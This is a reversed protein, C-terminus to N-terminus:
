AALQNSKLSTASILAAISPLEPGMTRLWGSACPEKTWGSNTIEGSPVRTTNPAWDAAQELGTIQLADLFEKNLVSYAVPADKLDIALRGGAVATAAVFGSDKQSNVEFPSLVVPSKAGETEVEIRSPVAPNSTTGPAVPATAQAFVASSFGSFVLTALLARVSSSPSATAGTPYKRNMPTPTSAFGEFVLRPAMPVTSVGSTPACSRFGREFIFRLSARSQPVKERSKVGLTNRKASPDAIAMLRVNRM